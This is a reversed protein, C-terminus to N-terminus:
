HSQHVPRSSPARAASDWLELLTCATDGGGDKLGRWLRGIRSWSGPVIHVYVRHDTAIPM